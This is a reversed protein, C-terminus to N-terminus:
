ILRTLMSLKIPFSPIPNMMFVSGELIWGQSVLEEVIPDTNQVKRGNIEFPIYIVQKTM